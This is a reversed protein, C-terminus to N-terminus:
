RVIINNRRPPQQEETRAPVPALTTKEARVSSLRKLVIKAQTAYTHKGSIVTPKEAANPATFHKVIRAYEETSLTRNIKGKVERTSRYKATAPDTQVWIILTEYGAAKAKRILKERDTRIDTGGEILLSRGTKLIEDIYYEMVNAAGADDFTYPIIKELSIFPTNFTTAFKEAFFTKGSGPYGVMILM